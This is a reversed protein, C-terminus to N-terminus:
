QLLGPHRQLVAKFWPLAYAEAVTSVQAEAYYINTQSESYGEPSQKVLNLKYFAAFNAILTTWVKVITKRFGLINEVALYLPHSYRELTTTEVYYLELAPSYEISWSRRGALFHRQNILLLETDSLLQPSPGPTIAGAIKLLTRMNQLEKAKKSLEEPGIWLKMLTTGVFSNTGEMKHLTVWDVHTDALPMNSVFTITERGKFLYKELTATAENHRNFVTCFNSFLDEVTAKQKQSEDLDFYGVFHNIHYDGVGGAQTDRYHRYPSM